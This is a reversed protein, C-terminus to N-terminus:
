SKYDARDAASKTAPIGLALSGGLIVFMMIGAIPMAYRATKLDGRSVAGAIYIIVAAAVVACGVAIMGVTAFSKSENDKMEAGLNRVTAMIVVFRALEMLAAVVDLTDLGGGILRSLDSDSTLLLPLIPLQGTAVNWIQSM